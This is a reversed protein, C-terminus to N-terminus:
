PMTEFMFRVFRELRSKVDPPWTYPVTIVGFQPASQKVEYPTDKQGYTWAALRLASYEIDPEPSYKAISAGSAHSGGPAFSATNTGNIYPIVLATGNGSGTGGTVAFFQDGIKLLDGPSIRPAHGTADSAGTGVSGAGALSISGASATYAAALSTGTDIWASDYNEHYGWIGTVEIARQPTGIFNLLSGSYKNLVIRNYPRVNWDDGLGLWMVSSPMTCAGNQYKLASLSLLDEDLKVRRSEVYDYFRTELRPYFKRQTFTDISRSAKTIFSLLLENDSNNNSALSLYSQLKALSVYENM